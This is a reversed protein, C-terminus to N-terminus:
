ANAQALTHYTIQLGPPPDPWPEPTLWVRSWLRRHLQERLWTLGRAFLSVRRPKAPSGGLPKPAKRLRGPPLERVEADEARTGYALVWLTAVALVLWHRSVRSPETRRTKQWQWGVGKLARFGLEVWVRLSYWWLGVKDPALDTLLVWPEEEGEAWVVILTGCRRKKRDKFVTAKGIWAHGPGPVLRRAAQRRQGIPQCTIANQLRLLPHWGLDRIRKWLRPSWLGRDAMVVVRYGKPVERRILRLLRLIPGMWAGEQNAPLILWAIPIASGRYLISVALSVVQDGHLTPDIALALERGQWWSLVWRILPGFCLTVDIETQCPAAKDQGDYLWERLHQRLADWKGLVLLAAVVANQCASGALVTGYVWLALGGQQAPRLNPFREAVVELLQYYQQPYRM